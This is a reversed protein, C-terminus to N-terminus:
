SRFLQVSNGPGDFATKSNPGLLAMYPLGLEAIMILREADAQDVALTVLVSESASSSSAALASTNGSSSGQANPNEGVALVLVKTLVISTGVGGLPNATTPSATIQHDVDCTRQIQSGKGLAYTDFVAVYSGPVPYDAVDEQICMLVTVAVLHGPIVFGGSSPTVSGASALMNQLLLQGKAVNTGLVMRANTATVSQVGPSSLSGVPVKESALLGQKQAVRLQTDAPIAVRAYMVTDAKLGNVARDNAKHVYAVVAAMGLVALLAALAIALLRRKL